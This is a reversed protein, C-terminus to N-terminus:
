RTGHNVPYLLTPKLKTIPGAFSEKVGCHHGTVFEQTSSQARAPAPTFRGRLRTFDSRNSSDQSITHEGAASEEREITPHHTTSAEAAGGTGADRPPDRMTLRMVREELSRMTEAHRAQDERLRTLEDRQTAAVEAHAEHARSVATDVHLHDLEERLREVSFSEGEPHIKTAITLPTATKGFTRHVDVGLATGATCVAGLGGVGFGYAVNASATAAQVAQMQISVQGAYYPLQWAAASLWSATQAAAYAAQATELAGTAISLQGLAFAATPVAFLCLGVGGM